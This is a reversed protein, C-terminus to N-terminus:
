EDFIRKALTKDFKIPQPNTDNYYDNLFNIYINYQDIQDKLDKGLDNEEIELSLSDAEEMAAPITTFAEKKLSRLRESIKQHLFNFVKKPLETPSNRFIHRAAFFRLRQDVFGEAFEWKREWPENHFREMISSDKYNLNQSYITEEEHKIEQTQNENFDIAEKELIKELNSLFEKNRLQRCKLEIEEGSFDSYPPIKMAFSKDLISPQKNIKIKRFFSKRKYIDRLQNEDLDIIENCDYKLDFGIFQKNYIPHKLLNKVLYIKHTNFIYSHLTFSDEKLIKDELITPYSNDAFVRFLDNNKKMLMELLKMTTEVDAIAEHANKSEFSNANALSELKFTIRGEDNKGVNISNKRFAHIMTAFNMVDLRSNGKTNTLYPFIFHEWFTQRFFEEDFNISNFGVFFSNKYKSLSKHIDLTMEYYSKEESLINSIKLRNVRLANISPVTDPNIRSKLNLKEIEKFDQDYIIVGAQLIQDFRSSRGSTEFDYVIFNRM